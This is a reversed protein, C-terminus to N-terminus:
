ATTPGRRRIVFILACAALAAAGAVGFGWAAAPVGADAAPAPPTAQRPALRAAALPQRGRVLRDLADLSATTPNMWTGDAGRVKQASPVYLFNWGSTGDGAKVKVEFRFYPAARDPASGRGGGDLAAHNAISTVDRCGDAGCANVSVIEKAQASAPLALAALATLLAIQARMDGTCGGDRDPERPLRQSARQLTTRKSLRASLPSPANAAGM